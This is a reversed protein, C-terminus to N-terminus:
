PRQLPALTWNVGYGDNRKKDGKLFPTNPVFEIDTGPTNKTTAGFMGFHQRAGTDLKYRIM